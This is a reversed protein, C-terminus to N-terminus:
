RVKITGTKGSIGTLIIIKESGKTVEEMEVNSPMRLGPKSHIQKQHTTMIKDSSPLVLWSKDLDETPSRNGM